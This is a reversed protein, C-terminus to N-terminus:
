PQGAPQGRSLTERGIRRAGHRYELFAIFMQWYLLEAVSTMYGHITFASMTIEFPPFVVLDLCVFDAGCLLVWVWGM